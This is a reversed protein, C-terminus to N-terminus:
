KARRWEWPAVPANESWLGIRKERAAEEAKIYILREDIPQEKMYQKYHWALGRHIQELNVDIGDVEIRGIIRRYRDTKNYHVTVTRNYVLDSLSRKSVDSFPQYREPADIGSLRIKHQANSTDLLTISDGDAVGIVTGPLEAASSYVSLSFLTGCVILKLFFM